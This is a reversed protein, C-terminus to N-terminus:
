KKTKLVVNKNSLALKSNGNYELYGSNMTISDGQKLIINGNAKIINQKKYYLALDCWVDIGEHKFQVQKGDSIFVSANPYKTENKIFNGGYVIQINKRQSFSSFYLSSIIILLFFQKM